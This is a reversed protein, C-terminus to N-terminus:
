DKKKFLHYQKQPVGTMKVVIFNGAVCGVILGLILGIAGGGTVNSVLGVLLVAVIFAVGYAIYKNKPKPEEHNM